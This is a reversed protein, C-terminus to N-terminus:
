CVRNEKGPVLGGFWHETCDFQEYITGDRTLMFLEAGHPNMNEIHLVEATGSKKGHLCDAVFAGAMGIRSLDFDLDTMTDGLNYLALFTVGTELELVYATPYPAEFYDVPRAALGTPPLQREYLRRRAPSLNELEDNSLVLGGAMAVAVAWLEAEAWTCNFGDGRDYDRLVLGDPDNMYVKNHYFYRRGVTAMCKKMIDWYTPNAKNKGWIIDASMRAGNFIGAGILTQAGCSLLFVDEGVEDRIIQLCRRLLEVCYGDEFRVFVGGGHFYRIAAAIFDIKFYGVGYDDVLRRFTQRLHEHFRPDGLNFPHYHERLTLAEMAMDKMTEYAPTKESLLLPALWLGFTMGRDRVYQATAEPGAPFKKEDAYWDGCFSTNKQWGDDIQILNAYGKGYTVQADAARKIKEENVDSFYCSWSCWGVPTEKAPIARNLEAMRDAYVELLALEAGPAGIAFMFREMVYGEGVTLEREELEFCFTVKGEDLRLSSWFRHQTLLGALLPLGNERNKFLLMQATERRPHETYHVVESFDNTHASDDYYYLADAPAFLEEPLPFIVEMAVPCVGAKHATLTVTHVAQTLDYAVSIGDKPTADYWDFVLPATDAGVYLRIDMTSEGTLRM